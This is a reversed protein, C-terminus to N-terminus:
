AMLWLLFLKSGIKYVTNWINSLVTLINEIFPGIKSGKIKENLISFVSEGNKIAEIFIAAKDILGKFWGYVTSFISKIGGNRAADIIELIFDVIKNLKEAIWSAVRDLLKTEKLYKDLTVLFGEGEMLRSFIESILRGIPKLATLISSFATKIIHFGSLLNQFVKSIARMREETPVLSDSWKRFKRTLLMVRNTIDEIFMDFRTVGEEALDFEGFLTEWFDLLGNMLAGEDHFGFIKDIAEFFNEYVSAKNVDFEIGFILDRGGWKKWTEFIDLVYTLPTVFLDYFKEVMDSFLDRAEIADGIVAQFIRMWKTAAAEQTAEIVESLKKTQQNAIFARRGLELESDALIDLYEAATEANVGLAVAVDAIADQRAELDNNKTAEAYKTVLKNWTTTLLKGGTKESIEALKNAYEGFEKAGRILTGGTFWGYKLTDNFNNLSVEVGKTVASADTAGNVKILTGEAVAADLFAQRVETTSAGRNVVKEWDRWQVENRGLADTLAATIDAAQQATGGGLGVMANLGMIAATSDEIGISYGLMDSLSKVMNSAFASTEDSYFYLLDLYKSVYELKRKEEAEDMGFENGEADTKVASMITQVSDALQNYKNWGSAINDFALAKVIKSGADVAADVLKSVASMAVMSWGSIKVTLNDLEDNLGQFKVKNASRELDNFSDACDDFKLKRKFKDLTSMSTKVNKEFSSNDFQMSVVREDVTTSM